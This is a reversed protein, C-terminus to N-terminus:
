AAPVNKIPSQLLAIIEGILEEKGKLKSLVAVQDDGIFVASDVYAAKLLPRDSGSRRYDKLM